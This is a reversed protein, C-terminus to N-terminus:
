LGLQLGVNNGRYGRLVAAVAAAFSFGAYALGSNARWGAGKTGDILHKRLYPRGVGAVSARKAISDLAM